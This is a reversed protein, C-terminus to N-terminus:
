ITVRRGHPRRPNLLRNFFEVPQAHRPSRASVAYATMKRATRLGWAESRALNFFAM